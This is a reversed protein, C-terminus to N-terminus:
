ESYSAFFSLIGIFILLLSVLYFRAHYKWPLSELIIPSSNEHEFNIMNNVIILLGIAM